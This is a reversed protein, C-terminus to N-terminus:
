WMATSAGNRMGAASDTTEVIYCSRKYLDVGPNEPYMASVVPIGLQKSM